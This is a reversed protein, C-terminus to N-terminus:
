SSLHMELAKKENLQGIQITLREKELKLDMLQKRLETENQSQLDITCRLEELEKRQSRFLEKDYTKVEKKNMTLSLERM